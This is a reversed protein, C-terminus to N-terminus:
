VHKRRTREKSTRRSTRKLHEGWSSRMQDIIMSAVTNIVCGAYHAGDFTLDFLDSTAKWTDVFPVEYRRAAAEAVDNYSRLLQLFRHDTHPCRAMDGRFPSSHTSVWFTPISAGRLHAMSRAVNRGYAAATLPVRLRNSAPWHGYNMGFHTCQRAKAMSLLEPVSPCRPPTALPHLSCNEGACCDGASALLVITGGSCTAKNRQATIQNCSPTLHNALNRAHSDGSYCLKMHRPVQAEEAFSGFVLKNALENFHPHPGLKTGPLPVHPEALLAALPASVIGNRWSWLDSMCSQFHAQAGEHWEYHPLLVSENPRHAISCNSATGSPDFMVARVHLTYTGGKCVKFTAVPPTGVFRATQPHPGSVRAIVEMGSLDRSLILRRSSSPLDKRVGCLSIEPAVQECGGHRPSVAM